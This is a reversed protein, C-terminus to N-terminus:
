KPSSGGSKPCNTGGTGGAPRGVATEGDMGGHRLTSHVCEVWDM